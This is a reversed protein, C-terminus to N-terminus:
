QEEKGTAGQLGVMLDLRGNIIAPSHTAIIVDFPTLDVIKTLAKVFKKQWEIHMSLEPEDVLVLRDIKEDAQFLLSFILVILHQEGSSLETLPIEDDESNVVSFGNQSSIRLKKGRLLDEVVDKFVLIKDALETYVVLKQQTDAVYLELVRRVLVAQTAEMDKPLSDITLQTSEILGSAVLRALRERIESLQEEIRTVSSTAKGRNRVRDLLRMPFTGDVDKARQDAAVIVDQVMTKLQRSFETVTAVVETRNAWPGEKKRGLTLRDARIFHVSSKRAVKQFWAPVKQEQHKRPSTWQSRLQEDAQVTGGAAFIAEYIELESREKNTVLISELPFETPSANGSRVMPNGAPRTGRATKRFITVKEGNVFEVTFEEFQYKFFVDYNQNFLGDLLKFIVTKGSGNPGHIITIRKDLKLEIDYNFTPLGFLQRVTIRSIRM